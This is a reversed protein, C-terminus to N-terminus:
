NRSREFFSNELEVLALCKHGTINPERVLVTKMTRSTVLSCMPQLNGRGLVDTSFRYLDKM